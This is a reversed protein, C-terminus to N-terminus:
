VRIPLPTTPNELTAAIRRLGTELDNVDRPAGLCIRVSHPVGGRGIAFPEASAIAVRQQRMAAVFEGARWPEPLQLWLHLCGPPSLFNADKLIDRAMAQRQAADRKHSAMITNAMGTEIWRSALEAMLPAAMWCSARVSAGLADVKDEPAVIYGIRLGPAVTKSLGTLYYGQAGAYASLPQMPKAFAGYIDDEIVAVDHRQAIDAISQRRMASMTATTPNHLTAMCYLARVGGDRAAREFADPLLGEDDMALGELRLGLQAAAPKVGQYSLCETVIRDGPRTLTALTTLIGHQTGATIVIRSADVPWGTRSIWAAGAARHRAIGIDPQYDLLAACSPDSAMEALTQALAQREAGPAPFNLTLDIMGAEAMPRHPLDLPTPASRVFTGRGIEGSLLDRRSMEAYARSVTGVTVGLRWALDRHTPLQAGPAMQGSTIQEGLADAIARYKPGSRESLDLDFITM